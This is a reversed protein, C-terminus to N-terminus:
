WRIEGNDSVQTTRKVNKIKALSINEPDQPIYEKDYYDEEVEFEIAEILRFDNDLTSPRIALNETIFGNGVSPYVICDYTYERKTEADPAFIREAFLASILYEYHHSTMKTFERGLLKFYYRMYTMFLSSNFKAQEEFAHTAKRVGDNIHIATDSHSIPFSVLEKNIDKPKWIGVTVLRNRPPRTEKLTTDINESSYFMNTAPTNARNYKNLEKVKKLSPYKLNNVCFVSENTGKVSENVILRYTQSVGLKNTMYATYNFAYFIYNKFNEFEEATFSKYNLEILKNDLESYFTTLEEFIKGEELTIPQRHLLKFSIDQEITTYSGKIWKKPAPIDPLDRFNIQWKPPILFVRNRATRDWIDITKEIDEILETLRPKRIKHSTLNTKQTRQHFQLAFDHTAKEILDFYFPALPKEYNNRVKFCSYTKAYFVTTQTTENVMTKEIWVNFYCYTSNKPEEPTIGLIYNHEKDANLGIFQEMPLHIWHEVKSPYYYAIEM